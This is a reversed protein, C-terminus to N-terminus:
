CIYKYNNYTYRRNNNFVVTCKGDYDSYECFKIDKTKDEFEGNRKIFILNTKTNM